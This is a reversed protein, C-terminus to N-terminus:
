FQEYCVQSFINFETWRTWVKYKLQKLDLFTGEIIKYFKTTIVNQFFGEM